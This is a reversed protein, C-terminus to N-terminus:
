STSATSPAVTSAKTSTTSTRTWLWADLDETKYRPKRPTLLVVPVHPQVHREFSSRSMGLYVAAEAITLMSTLPSVANMTISPFDRHPCAHSTFSRVLRCKDSTRDCRTGRTFTSVM